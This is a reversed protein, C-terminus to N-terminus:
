PKILSCLYSFARYIVEETVRAAKPKEKSGQMHSAWALM